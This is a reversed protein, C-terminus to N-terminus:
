NPDFGYMWKNLAGDSSDLGICDMIKEFNGAVHEADETDLVSRDFNNISNRLLEVYQEKTTNNKVASIFIQITSNFKSYLSARLVPDHVGTYIGGKEGSFNDRNALITLEQIADDKVKMPEGDSYATCATVLVPLFLLIINRRLFSELIALTRRHAAAWMNTLSARGERLVAIKV